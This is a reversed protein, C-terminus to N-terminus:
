ENTQFTQNFYQEASELTFPTTPMCPDFRVANEIVEREYPLLQIVRDITRTMRLLEELSIDNNTSAEVSEDKLTKLLIQLPTEIKNEM